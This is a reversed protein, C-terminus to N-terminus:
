KNNATTTIWYDGRECKKLQTMCDMGNCIDEEYADWNTGYYLKTGNNNGKDIKMAKYYLFAIIIFAMMGSM